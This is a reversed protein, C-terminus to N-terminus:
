EGPYIDLQLESSFVSEFGLYPLPQAMLAAAELARQAEADLECDASIASQVAGGISQKLVLSCKGNSGSRAWQKNVAARLAALYAARLGDEGSGGASSSGTSELYETSSSVSPHDGQELATPDAEAIDKISQDDVAEIQDEPPLPLAVQAIASTEVTDAPSDKPESILDIRQRFEGGKLFDVSMGPGEGEGVDDSEGLGGAASGGWILLFMSVHLLVSIAIALSRERSEWSEDSAADIPMARITFM